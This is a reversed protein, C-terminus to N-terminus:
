RSRIGVNFHPKIMSDSTETDYHGFSSRKYIGEFISKYILRSWWLIALQLRHREGEGLTWYQAREQQTTWRSPMISGRTTWSSPSWPPRQQTVQTPNHQKDYTDYINHPWAVGKATGIYLIRKQLTIRWIRKIPGLVSKKDTLFDSWHIERAVAVFFIEPYMAHFQKM